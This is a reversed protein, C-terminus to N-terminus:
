GDAVHRGSPRETRSAHMLCAALTSGSGPDFEGGLNNGAWPREVGAGFTGKIVSDRRLEEVLEVEIVVSVGARGCGWARAGPQLRGPLTAMVQSAAGEEARWM